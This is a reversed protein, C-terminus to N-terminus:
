QADEKAAADLSERVQTMCAALRNQCGADVEHDGARVRCEGLDLAPDSM